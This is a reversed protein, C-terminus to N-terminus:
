RVEILEEEFGLDKLVDVIRRLHDGQLEIRGDKTTGGCALNSKLKSALDGLNVENADLGAVVTVKKGWRRRDISIEIKQEERAISECVCLDKPMGCKPCTESM